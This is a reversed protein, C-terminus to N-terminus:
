AVRVAHVYVTGQDGAANKVVSLSGGAAVICATKHLSATRGIAHEVACTMASTIDTGGSGAYTTHLKATGSSNAGTCLAWSDLMKFKFPANSDFVGVVAAAASADIEMVFPVGVPPLGTDWAALLAVNEPLIPGLQFPALKVWVTTASSASAEAAGGIHPNTNTKTIKGASADWYLRDGATVVLSAEKPLEVAGEVLLQFEEGAAATTMPVGFLKGIRTPTGSTVGGVPAVCTIHNGPKFSTKM